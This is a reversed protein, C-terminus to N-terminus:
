PDPLDPTRAAAVVTETHEPEGYSGAATPPHAAAVVVETGAPDTEVLCTELARIEDPREVWVVKRNPRELGLVEPGLGEAPHVKFEELREDGPRESREESKAKRKYYHETATFAILFVAAFATGSITAVTKTLLNALAAALLVLFILGLGIPLKVRGLRVNLPVRYGRYRDPEKFGLVVMAVAR